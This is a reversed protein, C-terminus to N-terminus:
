NLYFLHSCVICKGIASNENDNNDNDASDNGGDTDRANFIYIRVGRINSM